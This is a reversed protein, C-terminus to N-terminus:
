PSLLIGYSLVFQSFLHGKVFLTNIPGIQKYIFEILVAYTCAHLIKVGNDATSVDFIM